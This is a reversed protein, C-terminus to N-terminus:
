KEIGTHKTKKTIDDLNQLTNLAATTRIDLGLLVKIQKFKVPFSPSLNGLDTSTAHSTTFYKLILCQSENSILHVYSLASTCIKGLYM